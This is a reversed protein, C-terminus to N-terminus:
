RIFRIVRVGAREGAKASAAERLCADLSLSFLYRIYRRCKNGVLARSNARL